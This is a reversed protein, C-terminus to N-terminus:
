YYLSLPGRRLRPFGRNASNNDHHRRTTRNRTHYTYLDITTTDSSDALRVRYRDDLINLLRNVALRINMLSDIMRLMTDATVYHMARLDNTHRHVIKTSLDHRFDDGYTDVLHGQNVTTVRRDPHRNFTRRERIVEYVAYPVVTDKALGRFQRLNHDILGANYFLGVRADNDVTDKDDRHREYTRMRGRIHVMQGTNVSDNDQESYSRGTKAIGLVTRRVQRDLYDRNGLILNDNRNLLRVSLISSNDKGTLFRYMNGHTLRQLIHLMMTVMTMNMHVNQEDTLDRVRVKGLRHSTVLTRILAHVMNRNLILVTNRNSNSAKSLLLNYAYRGDRNVDNLGDFHSNKTTLNRDIHSRRKIVADFDDITDNSNVTPRKGNLNIDLTVQRNVDHRHSTGQARVAQRNNNEILNTYRNRLAGYVTNMFSIFNHGQVTRLLTRLNLRVSSGLVALSLRLAHVRPTRDQLLEKVFMLSLIRLISNLRQRNADHTHNRRNRRHRRRYANTGNSYRLQTLTRISM